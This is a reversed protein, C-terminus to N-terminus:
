DLNIRITVETSLEATEGALRSITGTSSARASPSGNRQRITSSSLV